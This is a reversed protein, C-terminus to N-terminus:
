RRRPPGHDRSRTTRLRMRELTREVTRVGIAEAIQAQTAGERVLRRITAGHTEIIEDVTPPIPYGVRERLRIAAKTSVGFREAIAGSSPHPGSPAAALEARLEVLIADDREAHPRNKRPWVM